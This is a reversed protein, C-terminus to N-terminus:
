GPARSADQAPHTVAAGTFEGPDLLLQEGAPRLVPELGGQGADVGQDVEEARRMAGHRDDLHGARVALRRRRPHDVLEQAAEPQPHPPEGARV